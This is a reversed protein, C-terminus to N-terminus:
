NKSSGFYGLFPLPFTKKRELLEFYLFLIMIPAFKRHSIYKESMTNIYQKVPM